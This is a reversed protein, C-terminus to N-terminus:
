RRRRTARRRSAPMASRARPRTRASTAPRCSSWSGPASPRRSRRFWRIRRPRSTSRTALRCTSSTSRSRRGTRSPLSSRPSSTARTGAGNADLVKLGILRVGPAVGVYKGLSNRGNGAILGAIHTGHGYADSPAAAVGGRTFDYFATIRGGLDAIPAIGSDIIAVGVNYGISSLGVGLTRRLGQADFSNALAQITGVSGFTADADVLTGTASTTSTLTETVGDLLQTPRMPADISIGLVDNDDALQELAERSLEASVAGLRHERFLRGGKGTVQKRVSEKKDSRYRVIVRTKARLKATDRLARDLKAARKQANGPGKNGKGQASSTAPLMVSAVVFLILCVLRLLHM